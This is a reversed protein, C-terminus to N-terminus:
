ISEQLNLVPAAKFSFYYQGEMTGDEMEPIMHTVTCGEELAEREPHLHSDVDPLGELDTVAEGHVIVIGEWLVMGDVVAVSAGVDGRPDALTGVEEVM